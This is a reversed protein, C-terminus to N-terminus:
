ARGEASLDPDLDPFRHVTKDWHLAGGAWLRIYILIARRAAMMAIINALFMRPISRFAEGRGYARHVFLMRMAIRWFLFCANISLLLPLPGPLAVADGIGLMEAMLAVAACALGAYAAALILAALLSRRDHLRMWAEVFGKGWGLRDWGALAIGVMWRAKQRVAADITDPFYERTAVLEGRADRMRVLIGRGGREGVRLGLEYDETLSDPDFPRGHRVSALLGMMGRAIACGVGASPMAAGLAERVMLAKAHSEAFEDCYHGSIWRSRTSALPLVPLQVLAFREVMASLVRMADAHVVDEADHLVVAKALRGREVEWRLLARWLTNLCYAKTTPGPLPNIAMTVRDSLRAVSAVSVITATDNPYVGVFYHVDDDPWRALCHRLMPGIVAGKM